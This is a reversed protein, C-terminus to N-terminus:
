YRGNWYHAQYQEEDAILSLSHNYDSEDCKLHGAHKGNPWYIIPDGKKIPLGCTHCKSPFRSTTQYPDGGNRMRSM